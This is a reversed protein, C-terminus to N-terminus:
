GIKPYSCGSRRRISTPFISEKASASLNTVEIYLNNSTFIYLAGEGLRPSPANYYIRSTSARNQPVCPDSVGAVIDTVM